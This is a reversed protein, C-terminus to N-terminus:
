YTLSYVQAKFAEFTEEEVIDPPLTNWDKMDVMDLLFLM